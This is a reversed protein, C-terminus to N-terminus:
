ATTPPFASFTVIPFLISSNTPRVFPLREVRFAHGTSLEYSSNATDNSWTKLTTGSTTENVTTIYHGGQTALITSDNTSEWGFGGGRTVTRSNRFSTTLSGAITIGEPPFPVRLTSKWGFGASTSITSDTGAAFNTGIAQLRGFTVPSQFGRPVTNDHLSLSDSISSLGTKWSTSTASATGGADTTGSSIYSYSSNNNDTDSYSESYSESTPANFFQIPIMSPQTWTFLSLRTGASDTTTVSSTTTRTTTDTIPLNATRTTTTSTSFTFTTTRSSTYGFSTTTTPLPVTAGTFSGISYSSSATTSRTSAVTSSGFTPATYTFSFNAGFAATSASLTQIQNTITTQTFTSAVSQVLGESNATDIWGWEDSSVGVVLDLLVFTNSSTSEYTTTDWTATSTNTSLVTDASTTLTTYSYSASTTTGTTTTSSTSSIPYSSSRTSNSTTTVTGSSSTTATTSNWSTLLTGGVIATSSESFTFPAFTGATIGTFNTYSLSNGSRISSNYYQEISSYTAVSETISRSSLFTRSFGVERTQSFSEMRSLYVTTSDTSTPGSISDTRESTFAQIGASYGTGAVYGAHGPYFSDAQVQTGSGTSTSETTFSRSYTIAFAGVITDSFTNTSSEGSANSISSSRSYSDPAATHTTYYSWM